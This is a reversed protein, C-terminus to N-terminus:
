PLPVNDIYNELNELIQMAKNKIEDPRDCDKSDTWKIWGIEEIQYILIKLEKLMEHAERKEYTAM